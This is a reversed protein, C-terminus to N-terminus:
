FFKYVKRSVYTCAYIVFSWEYTVCIISVNKKENRLSRMNLVPLTLPVQSQLLNGSVGQPTTADPQTFIPRKMQDSRWRVDIFEFLCVWQLKGHFPNNREKRLIQYFVTQETFVTSYTCIYWGRMFWIIITM